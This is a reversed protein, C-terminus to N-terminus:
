FSDFILKILSDKSDLQAQKQIYACVKAEEFGFSSVNYGWNWLNEGKFGRQM